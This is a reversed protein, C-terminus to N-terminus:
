LLAAQRRTVWLAVFFQHAIPSPHLSCNSPTHIGAFVAYDDVAAAALYRRAQSLQNTPSAIIDLLMVQLSTRTILVVESSYINLIPTNIESRRDGRCM